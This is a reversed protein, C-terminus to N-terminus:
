AKVMFIQNLAKTDLVAQRKQAIFRSRVFNRSGRPTSTGSPTTTGTAPASVAPTSQGTVAGSASAAAEKKRKKKEKKEKKEKKSKKDKVQDDESDSSSRSKDKSKSKRKKSREESPTKDENDSADGSSKKSRSKDKKSKKEKKPKDNDTEASGESEKLKREEKRRKKSKSETEQSSSSDEEDSAKRKKSKKEKKSEKPASPSDMTVDDDDDKTTKSVEPEDEDKAKMEDGVLLGGFVFRMPGYRQEVFYNTKVALRAQQDEVIAVEAKGNLRSLLDQFVDLGTIEDEKSKSFGLGKMDDKLIVRIYSANAATHLESHPADQAGLFQGPEWGQSRLIKQGFTNTDRTWKTNNPDKNIKRRIKNEALLGM